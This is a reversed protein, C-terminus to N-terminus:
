ANHKILSNNKGGLKELEAIGKSTCLGRMFVMILNSFVEKLNYQIYLQQAMVERITLDAIKEILEYNVEPRFYGQDIGKRFFSASNVARKKRREEFHKLVQPYKDLEIFYAPNIRSMRSMKVEYFHLMIDIVNHNTEHAFVEMEADTSDMDHKVCELLLDEKNGFIEYVTRKSVSLLCAIDDMKVSKIGKAEFEHTAAEIIRERLQQRYETPSATKNMRPFVLRKHQLPVFFFFFKKPNM